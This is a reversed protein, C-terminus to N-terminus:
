IGASGGPYVQRWKYQEEEAYYQLGIHYPAFAGSISRVYAANFDHKMKSFESALFGKVVISGVQDGCMLSAMLWSAAKPSLKVCEGFMKTPHDFSDSVQVWNVPCFCNVECLTKRITTVLELDVSKSDRDFRFSLGTSALSGIPDKSGDDPLVAITMVKAGSNTLHDLDTEANDADVESSAVLLFLTPRETNPIADRPDTNMLDLTVLA